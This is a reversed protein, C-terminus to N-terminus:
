NQRLNTWPLDLGRDGMTITAWIRTMTDITMTDIASGGSQCLVISAVLTHKLIKPSFSSYSMTM